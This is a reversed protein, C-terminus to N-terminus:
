PQPRATGNLLEVSVPAGSVSDGHQQHHLWDRLQLAEQRYTKREASDLGLRRLGNILWRDLRAPLLGAGPTCCIHHWHLCGDQWQLVEGNPGQTYALRAGAPLPPGDDVSRAVIVSTRLTPRGLSVLQRYYRPTGLGLDFRGWALQHDTIAEKTPLSCPQSRGGQFQPYWPQQDLTAAHYFVDTLWALREYPQDSIAIHTQYCYTGADPVWERITQHANILPHQARHRAAMALLRRACGPAEEIAAQVSIENASM